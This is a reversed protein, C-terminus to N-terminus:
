PNLLANLIIQAKVLNVEMGWHVRDYSMDVAETRNQLGLTMNYVDIYNIPGCHHSDFFARM